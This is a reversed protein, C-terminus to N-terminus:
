EIKRIINLILEKIKQDEPNITKLKDNLLNIIKFRKDKFKAFDISSYYSRLLEGKRQDIAESM